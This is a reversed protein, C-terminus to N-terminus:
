IFCVCCFLMCVVCWVVVCVFVCFLVYVCCYMHIYVCEFRRLFLLSILLWWMTFCCMMYVFQVCFRCDDCVWWVVCTKKKYFVYFVSFVILVIYIYIYLCDYCLRYVCVFCLLCVYVIEVVIITFLVEDAFGICVDFVPSIVYFICFWVVCVCEYIKLSLWVCM